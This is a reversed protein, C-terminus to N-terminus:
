VYIQNARLYIRKDEEDLMAQEEPTLEDDELWEKEYEYRVNLNEKTEQIEKKSQM